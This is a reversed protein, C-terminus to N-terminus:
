KGSQASPPAIPAVKDPQTFGCSRCTRLEANRDFAQIAERLETEINAVYMEVEHLKADCRECLWVLSEKQHPQRKIEIVLGWSESPRHPSHPVLAPVLFMAGEDVVTHVRKKSADLHEVVIAGRLQYFIEDFPDIHFDRRANPGRVVMATYQSDEWIVKNGVPPEFTQENEEIWDWLNRSVLPLM